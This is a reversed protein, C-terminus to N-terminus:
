HSTPIPSKFDYIGDRIQWQTGQDDTLLNGDRQLESQTHPSVFIQDRDLTTQDGYQGIAINRTFISPAVLAGSQRVARDVNALLTAPLTRKLLNSRFFSVPIRREVTFTAQRLQEAIYDPHFNFNLEVFEVPDLTHPNWTQQGIAHRVLAKLNRKNAHELIFTAHDALVRRVAQLVGPVNEFHHIVRIMTAADFSATKFPLHYADAAVYTYKDDGLQQRAFQLQSFSYDLLVVHEYADYERSLRGFGAGIELLRKGRRPLLQRLVQREVQDEYNRGQGEWFDTRYNSGEYDCIRQEPQTM